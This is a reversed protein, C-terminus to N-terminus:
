AGEHQLERIRYRDQLRVAMLEFEKNTRVLMQEIEDDESLKDRRKPDDYTGLIQKMFSSMRALLSFVLMASQRKPLSISPLSRDHPEDIMPADAKIKFGSNWLIPAVRRFMEESMMINKM